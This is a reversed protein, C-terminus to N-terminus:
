ITTAIAQSIQQIKRRMKKKKGRLVFAHQQVQRVVDQVEVRVGHRHRVEEEPAEASPPCDTQQCQLPDEDEHHVM